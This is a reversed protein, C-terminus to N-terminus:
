GELLEGAAEVIKTATLGYAEMLAEPSGSTAFSDGLNVFRMPTPRLEAVAMAVASGLGGHQLHEEAVLIGITEEAAALVADRDLPKVTHVDLVRAEVGQGKLMDAAQLSAAVMLGNAMITLDSGECLTVAKGLAFDGRVSTTRGGAPTTPGGNSHVIPAKPRGVRIYVPGVHEAAARVLASAAVEDAPNVVVFGPLCCALGIDEIAMQSPGDEGISIGGHSGIVKVNLGPLAVSMRLQDFANCLMFAAFSAIFPTKGSSALGGALGVLNSEAIGVNFFRDPFEKAFYETRTSNFLDGDLVVIDPNERGLDALTKGFADRTAMGLKFEIGM